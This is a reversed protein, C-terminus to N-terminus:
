ISFLLFFPSDTKATVTNLAGSRMSSPVNNLYYVSANRRADAGDAPLATRVTLKGVCRIAIFVQGFM